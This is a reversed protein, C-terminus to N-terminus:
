KSPRGVESFSRQVRDAESEFVTPGSGASYFVCFNKWIQTRNWYILELSSKL